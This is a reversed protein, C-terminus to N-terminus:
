FKYRAGLMWVSADQYTTPTADAYEFNRYGLYVDLDAADITQVVALGYSESTDGVTQQDNGSFVDVSFATTGAAIIDDTQYGLKVYGFDGDGNDLRGAAVTLSVGTPHHLLSVSGALETVDTRTARDQHGIGFGAKTELDGWTKGYLIAADFYDDDNGSSLVEQGYSVSFSLGNYDPTDYRIRFRRSGDFTDYVDGIGIGSLAGGSTRFEYGGGLDSVGSYALVSTGSLDTEAVGNASMDGQGFSVTGFGASYALDVKRIDTRKWDWEDPLAGQGVEASNRFGLGTELTFKLTGPGVDSVVRMGIRSTSNANDVLENYESVGDDVSQIGFNLQGYFEVTPSSQAAATLPFLAFVSVSGVAVIAPMQPFSPM